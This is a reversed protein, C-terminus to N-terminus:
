LLSLHLSQKYFLPNFDLFVLVFDGGADVTLALDSIIERRKEKCVSCLVVFCLM